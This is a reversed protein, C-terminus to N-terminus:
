AEIGPAPRPGGPQQLAARAEDMALITEAASPAMQEDVRANRENLARLSLAIDALIHLAIRPAMATGMPMDAIYAEIARWREASFRSGVEGPEIGPDDSM